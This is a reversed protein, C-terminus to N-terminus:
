PVMARLVPVLRATGAATIDAAREGGAGLELDPPAVGLDRFFVDKMNDSYHQGSWIFQLDCEPDDRLMGLILSARIVDPRIGLILALKKSM